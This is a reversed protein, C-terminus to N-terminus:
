LKCISEKDINLSTGFDRSSNCWSNIETAVLEPSKFTKEKEDFYFINAKQSSGSIFSAITNRKKKELGGFAKALSKVRANNKNKWFTLFPEPDVQELESNSWRTWLVVAATGTVAFGILSKVFFSKNM